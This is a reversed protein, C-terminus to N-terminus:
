RGYLGRGIRRLPGPTCYKKTLFCSYSLHFRSGSNQGSKRGYEDDTREVGLDPLTRNGAQHLLVSAESQKHLISWEQYQTYLILVQAQLTGPRRMGFIPSGHFVQMGVRDFYRDVPILNFLLGPLEVKRRNVPEQGFSALMINTEYQEP